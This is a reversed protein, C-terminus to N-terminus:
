HSSVSNIFDGGEKTSSLMPKSVQVQPANYNSEINLVHNKYVLYLIEAHFESINNSLELM